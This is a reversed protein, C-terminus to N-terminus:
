DEKNYVPQSFAFEKDTREKAIMSAKRKMEEETSKFSRKVAEVVQQLGTWDELVLDEQHEEQHFGALEQEIEKLERLLNEKKEEVAALSGGSISAQRLQGCLNLVENQYSAVDKFRKEKEKEAEAKVLNIRARIIEEEDHGRALTEERAKVRAKVAALKDKAQSNEARARSVVCRVQASEQELREVRRQEEEGQRVLVARKEQLQRRLELLTDVGGM